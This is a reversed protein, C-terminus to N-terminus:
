SIDVEKCQWRNGVKRWGHVVVRWGAERLRPLADSEEIKRVRASINSYSTTQVGITEGGRLAVLDLVGWLDQRIKCVANWKEVVAPYYGEERLKALSRQTPSTM